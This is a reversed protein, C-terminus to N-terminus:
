QFLSVIHVLFYKETKRIYVLFTPLQSSNVLHVPKFKPKFSVYGRLRLCRCEPPNHAKSVAGNRSEIEQSKLRLPAYMNKGMSSVWCTM